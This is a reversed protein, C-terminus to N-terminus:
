TSSSSTAASTSVGSDIVVDQPMQFFLPYNEPYPVMDLVQLKSLETVFYNPHVHSLKTKPDFPIAVCRKSLNLEQELRANLKNLMVIFSVAAFESCIMKNRDAPLETMRTLDKARRKKHGFCSSVVQRVRSNRIHSFDTKEHYSREAEEWLLELQEMWADGYKQVLAMKAEETLLKEINVRFRRVTLEHGLLYGPQYNQYTLIMESIRMTAAKTIYSCGIHNFPGNTWKQLVKGESRGSYASVSPDHEAVFSSKPISRNFYSALSISTKEINDKLIQLESPLIGQKSLWTLLPLLKEFSDLLHAEQLNLKEDESIEQKAQLKEVINEIKRSVLAYQDKKPYLYSLKYIFTSISQYCSITTTEKTSHSKENKLVANILQPNEIIGILFDTAVRLNEKSLDKHLKNTIQLLGNIKQFLISPEGFYFRQLDESKEERQNFVKQAKNKLAITEQYTKRLDEVLELYNAPIKNRKLHETITNLFAFSKGFLIETKKLYASVEEEIEEDHPKEQSTYEDYARIYFYLENEFGDLIKNLKQFEGLIAIGEFLTDRSFVFSSPDEVNMDHIKGLVIEIASDSFCLTRELREKHSETVESDQLSALDGARANVRFM